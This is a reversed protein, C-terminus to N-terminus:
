SILFWIIIFFYLFFISKFTHNFNNKIKIDKINIFRITLLWWITIILYLVFWLFSLSDLNFTYINTIDLFTFNYLVVFYLILLLIKIIM